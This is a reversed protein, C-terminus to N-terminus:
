RPAPLEAVQDRCNNVFSEAGATDCLLGVTAHMEVRAVHGYEAVRKLFVIFWLGIGDGRDEWRFGVREGEGIPLRPIPRDPPHPHLLVFHNEPLVM